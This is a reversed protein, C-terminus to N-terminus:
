PWKRNFDAEGFQRKSVSFNSDPSTSIKSLDFKDGESAMSFVKEMEQDLDPGAEIGHSDSQLFPFFILKLKKLRKKNESYGKIDRVFKGEGDRLEQIIFIM